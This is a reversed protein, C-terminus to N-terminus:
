SGAIAGGGVAHFLLSQTPVLKAAPRIRTQLAAEFPSEVGSGSTRIGCRQQMGTSRCDVMLSMEDWAQM